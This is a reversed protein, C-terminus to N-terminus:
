FKPVLLLYTIVDINDFYFIESFYNNKLFFPVIKQRSSYISNHKESLPALCLELLLESKLKKVEFVGFFVINM